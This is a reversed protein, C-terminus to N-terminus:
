YGFTVKFMNFKQNPGQSFYIEKHSGGPSYEPHAHSGYGNWGSLLPYEVSWPGYPTDSTYMNTFSMYVNCIITYKKLYNNYFASGYVSCGFQGGPNATTMGYKDDTKGPIGASWETASGYELSEYKTSDFVDDSAHVRSVTIKSPGGMSYIYIYDGDRMIALLGMEVVDPGTLLPGMRTAVPQTDGLTIAAVVNGQDNFSGDPAGRWIQRAYAVGHTDNIAAVNSTDMGWSTQPKQPQADGAWAQLFDNNNVHTVGDTNITMVDDTGYFAPGMAFGCVTYDPTCMMDGCNWIVKGGLKSSRCKDGMLNKTALDGTYRIDGVYEIHWKSGNDAKWQQGSPPLAGTPLNGAVPTTKSAAPTAYSSATTTPAGLTATPAIGTVTSVPKLSATSASPPFVTWTGDPRLCHATGDKNFNCWDPIGNGDLDLPRAIAFSTYFSLLFTCFLVPYM